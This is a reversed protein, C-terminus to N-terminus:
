VERMLNQSELWYHANFEELAAEYARKADATYGLATKPEEKQCAGLVPGFSLALTLAALWGGVRLM